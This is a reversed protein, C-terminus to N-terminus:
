PGGSLADVPNQLNESLFLGIQPKKNRLSGYKLFFQFEDLQL